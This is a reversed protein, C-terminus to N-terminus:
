KVTVYIVNRHIINDNFINTKIGKSSYKKGIKTKNNQMNRNVTETDSFVVGAPQFVAMNEYLYNVINM